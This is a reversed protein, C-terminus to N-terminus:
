SKLELESFLLAAATAAIVCLAQLKNQPAEDHAIANRIHRLRNALHFADLSLVHRDRAESVFDAFTGEARGLRDRLTTEALRAVRLVMHPSVGDSKLIALLPSRRPLLASAMKYVAADLGSLRVRMTVPKGVASTQRKVNKAKNPKGVARKLVPKVGARTKPPTVVKRKPM